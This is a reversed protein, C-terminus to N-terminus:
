VWDWRTVVHIGWTSRGTAEITSSPEVSRVISMRTWRFGSLIVPGNWVSKVSLFIEVEWLTLAAIHTAKHESSVYGCSIPACFFPELFSPVLPPTIAESDSSLRCATSPLIAELQPLVTAATCIERVQSLPTHSSHNGAILLVNMNNNCYKTM